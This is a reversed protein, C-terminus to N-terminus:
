KCKVRLQFQPSNEDAAKRRFDFFADMVPRRQLKTPLIKRAKAPIM